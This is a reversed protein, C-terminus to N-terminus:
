KPYFERSDIGLVRCCTITDETLKGTMENFLATEGSRKTKKTAM